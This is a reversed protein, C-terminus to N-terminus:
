AQKIFWYFKEKGNCLGLMYLVIGNQVVNFSFALQKMWSFTESLSIIPGSRLVAFIIM